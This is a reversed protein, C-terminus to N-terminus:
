RDLLDTSPLLGVACQVMGAIIRIDANIPHRSWVEPLRIVSTKLTWALGDDDPHFRAELSWHYHTDQSRGLYDPDLQHQLARAFDLDARFLVYPVNIWPRAGRLTLWDMIQLPWPDSHGNCSAITQCRGTANLAAVLPVIGREVAGLALADSAPVCITQIRQGTDSGHM